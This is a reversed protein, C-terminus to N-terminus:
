PLSPFVRGEGKREYRAVPDRGGPPSAVSANARGGSVKVGRGSMGSREPTEERSRGDGDGKPAARIARAESPSVDRPSPSTAAPKAEGVPKGPRRPVGPPRGYGARFIGSLRGYSPRTICAVAGASLVDQGTLEPKAENREYRAGSRRRGFRRVELRCAAREESQGGPIRSQRNKEKSLVFTRVKGLFRVKRCPDLFDSLLSPRGHGGNDFLM